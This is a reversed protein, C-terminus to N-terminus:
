IHFEQLLVIAVLLLMQLFDACVSSRCSKFFRTKCFPCALGEVRRGWSVGGRGTWVWPPMQGQEAATWAQFCNEQTQEDHRGKWPM